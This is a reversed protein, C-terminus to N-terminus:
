YSPNIATVTKGVIVIGTECKSYSPKDKSIGHILFWLDIEHVKLLNTIEDSMKQTYIKYKPDSHSLM